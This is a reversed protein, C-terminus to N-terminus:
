RILVKRGELRLRRETLLAVAEVIAKHEEVLIRAALSEETDASEIAVTKQLVIPGTDTGADVFHVTCGTIRVGYDLAQQQAHLGPFSPLLAPHVNLIAGPWRELLPTGVIRMYGALVIAEVGRAELERRVAADHGARNRPFDRHDVVATPVGHGAAVDLGRASPDNSLVLAFDAEPLEGRRRAELLARLNSGRGSILVGLKM